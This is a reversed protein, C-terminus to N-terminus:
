DEQTHTHVIVTGPEETRVDRRRELLYETRSTVQDVRPALHWRPTVSTSGEPRDWKLFLVFQQDLIREDQGEVTNYGRDGERARLEVGDAPLEGLLEQEGKVLIRYTTRRDLDVDTRMTEVRVYAVVDARRVRQDLEQSWTRRWEGELAEPDAVLDLGDDFLQRDEASLPAGVLAEPEGGGCALLWSSSLLLLLKLARM